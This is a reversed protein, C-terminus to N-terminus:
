IEPYAWTGEMEMGYFKELMEKEVAAPDVDEFLDPHFWKGMYLLYGVM